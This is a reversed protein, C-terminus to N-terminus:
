DFTYLARCSGRSWECRGNRRRLGYLDWACAICEMRTVRRVTYKARAPIMVTRQVWVGPFVPDRMPCTSEYAPYHVFDVVPPESRGLIRQIDELLASSPATSSHPDRDIVIDSFAPRESAARDSEDRMKRNVYDRATAWARRAERAKALAAEKAEGSLPPPGRRKPQFAAADETSDALFLSPM